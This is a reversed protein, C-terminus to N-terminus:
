CNRENLVIILECCKIATLTMTKDTFIWKNVSLLMNVARSVKCLNELSCDNKDSNLHIILENTGLKGHANEWVYRDKQVWNTHDCINNKIKIFVRGRSDARESGLPYTQSFANYSSKVFGQENKRGHDIGHRLCIHEISSQSLNTKFHQNFATQIANWSHKHINQRLWEIESQTWKHRSVM